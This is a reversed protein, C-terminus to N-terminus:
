YLFIRWVQTKGRRVRSGDLREAEYLPEGTPAVAVAGAFVVGAVGGGSTQNSSRQARNPSPPVAAAAAAADLKRKRASGATAPADDAVAAVVSKSRAGRRPMM